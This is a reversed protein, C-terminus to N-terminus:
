KYRLPMRYAFKGKNWKSLVEMLQKTGDPKTFRDLFAFPTEVSFITEKVGRNLELEDYLANDPDVFLYDAGSDLGLHGILQKGIEPRGISVM